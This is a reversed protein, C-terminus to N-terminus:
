KVGIVQLKKMWWDSQGFYPSEPLVSVLIKDKKSKVVKVNILDGTIPHHIWIINGVTIVHKEYIKFLTDRNLIHQM